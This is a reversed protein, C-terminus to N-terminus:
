LPTTEKKIKESVASRIFGALSMGLSKAHKKFIEREGIPVRISLTEYNKANYKDRARKQAETMAM